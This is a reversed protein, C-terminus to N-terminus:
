DKWVIASLVNNTLTRYVFVGEIEEYGANDDTTDDTVYFPLEICGILNEKVLEPFGINWSESTKITKHVVTASIISIPRKRFTRVDATFQEEKGEEIYSAVCFEKSDVYFYFRLKKM